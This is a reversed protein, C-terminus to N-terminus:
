NKGGLAVYFCPVQNLCWAVLLFTQPEIGLSIVPSKLQGLGELRVVARPDVAVIRFQDGTDVYAERQLVKGAFDALFIPQFPHM